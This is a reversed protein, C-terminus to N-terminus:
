GICVNNFMCAGGDVVKEVPEFQVVILSDITTYSDVKRDKIKETVSSGIEIDYM